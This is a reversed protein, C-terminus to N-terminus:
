VNVTEKMKKLEKEALYDRYFENFDDMQKDDFPNSLDYRFYRGKEDKLWIASEDEAYYDRVTIPAPFLIKFPLLLVFTFLKWCITILISLLWFAFLCGLISISLILLMM